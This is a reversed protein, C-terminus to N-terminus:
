FVYRAYLVAASLGVALGAASLGLVRIRYRLHRKSIDATAVQPIVALLPLACATVDDALHFSTDLQWLGIPILAALVLSGCLGGLMLLRRNPRAPAQPLSAPDLVRFREGKQRRELSQSLQADLKKSLMSDYNKQTVEYDRTLGQLEQERQFGNEVRAQYLQIQKEVNEQEAKLRGIELQVDNLSRALEPPLLPDEAPGDSTGSEALDARLQAIQRKLAAVDPHEETYRVRLESLQAELERLHRRPSLVPGGNQAGQQVPVSRAESAQRDLLLKREKASSLALSLTQAQVRLGDLAHMNADRQEPLEGMHQQKFAQIGAEQEELRRKVKELENEIFETTGSVHEERIRLNEDIYLGALRATVRQVIVPDQGEYSIRFANDRPFVQIRIKRRMSDIIQERPMHESRLDRFLDFDKIISELRTRSLVEQSLANLREEVRTTVTAKVFSPPVDQPEVVILTTSEFVNPLMRVTWATVIVGVVCTCIAVLRYRSIANLCDLIPNSAQM